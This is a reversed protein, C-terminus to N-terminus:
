VSSSTQASRYGLWGLVLGFMCLLWGTVWLGFAAGLSADQGGLKQGLGCSDDMLADHSPPEGGVGEPKDGSYLASWVAFVMMYSFCAICASAIFVCKSKSFNVIAAPIAAITAFIGILSFAKGARCKSVMSDFCGLKYADPIDSGGNGFTMDCSDGDSTVTTRGTESYELSWTWVGAGYHDLDVALDGDFVVMTPDATAAIAFILALAFVGVAALKYPNSTDVKAGGGGEPQGYPNNARPEQAPLKGTALPNNTMGATAEYM